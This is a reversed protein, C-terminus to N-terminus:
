RFYRVALFSLFRQTHSFGYSISFVYLTIAVERPGDVSVTDYVHEFVERVSNFFDSQLIKQLAALKPNTIEGTKQVHEM